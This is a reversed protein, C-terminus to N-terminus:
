SVQNYSVPRSEDNDWDEYIVFKIHRKKPLYNTTDRPRNRVKVRNRNANDWAESSKNLDKYISRIPARGRLYRIHNINLIMKETILLHAHDVMSIGNSDYDIQNNDINFSYDVPLDCPLLFTNLEDEHGENGEAIPYLEMMTKERFYSEQDQKSEEKEIMKKNNKEYLDHLKAIAEEMIQRAKNSYEEMVINIGTKMDSGFVVHKNIHTDITWKGTVTNVTSRVRLNMSMNKIQNISAM